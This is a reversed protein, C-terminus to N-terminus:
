NGKPIGLSNREVVIAIPRSLEQEKERQIGSFYTHFDISILRSLEQVM